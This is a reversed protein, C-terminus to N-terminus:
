SAFPKHLSSIPSRVNANTQPSFLICRNNPDCSTILTITYFLELPDREIKRTIQISFECQVVRGILKLTNRSIEVALKLCQVFGQVGKWQFGSDASFLRVAVERNLSTISICDYPRYKEFRIDAKEMHTAPLQPPTFNSM